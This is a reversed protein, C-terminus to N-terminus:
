QVSFSSPKIKCSVHLLFNTYFYTDDSNFFNMDLHWGNRAKRSTGM